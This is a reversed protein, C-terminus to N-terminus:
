EGVEIEEVYIKEVSSKKEQNEKEQEPIFDIIDINKLYEEQEEINKRNMEYQNNQYFQTFNKKMGTLKMLPLMLFLILLIGLFVRVYKEYEKGPLIRLVATVLVMYFALNEVWQYLVKM